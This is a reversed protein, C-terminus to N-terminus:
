KLLWVIFVVMGAITTSVTALGFARMFKPHEEVWLAVRVDTPLRRYYSM